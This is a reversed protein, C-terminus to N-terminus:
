APIHAHRNKIRQAVACRPCLRGMWDHEKNEGFKQSEQCLVTPPHDYDMYVCPQEAFECHICTYYTGLAKASEYWRSEVFAVLSNFQPCDDAVEYGRGTGDLYQTDDETLEFKRPILLIRTKM